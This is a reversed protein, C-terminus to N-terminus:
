SNFCEFPRESVWETFEISRRHGPDSGEQLLEHLLSRVQAEIASQWWPDCQRTDTM